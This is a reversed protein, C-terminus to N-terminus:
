TWLTLATCLATTLVSIVFIANTLVTVRQNETQLEQRINILLEPTAEKYSLPKGPRPRTLYADLDFSNFTGADGM